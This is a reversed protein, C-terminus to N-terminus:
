CVIWPTTELGDDMILGEYAWNGGNEHTNMKALLLSLLIIDV